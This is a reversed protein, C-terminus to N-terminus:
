AKINCLVELLSASLVSEKARMLASRLSPQAVSFRESEVLEGNM